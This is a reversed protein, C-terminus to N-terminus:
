SPFHFQTDRNLYVRRYISGKAVALAPRSGSLAFVPRVDHCNCPLHPIHSSSGLPGVRESSQYTSHPEPVGGSHILDEM